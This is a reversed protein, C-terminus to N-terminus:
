TNEVISEMANHIGCNDVWFRLSRWGPRLPRDVAQLIRQLVRGHTDRALHHLPEDGDRRDSRDLQAPDLEEVQHHFVQRGETVMWVGTHERRAVLDRRRLGMIAELWSPGCYNFLKTERKFSFNPIGGDEGMDM